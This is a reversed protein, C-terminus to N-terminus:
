YPVWMLWAVGVLLTLVTLPVGVRAYELFTVEEGERRAAEVVILNAVSGLVTLNGALTSSMALALWATEQSGAPMAEVVPQLLLVAPVNSVLNSLGVSVLSLLDVPRALLWSWRPIDWTEVVHLRFTYVVIFLGAFMLLLTWDVQRYIKAPQVRGLLLVSAAALAILALHQSPLLFFLGVTALGVLMAKNRLGTHAASQPASSAPEAERQRAPQPVLRHRYLLSLLVYAILMGVLAVPLLRSTFRAYAIRSHIGIIINQPNGTITASSVINAATALGLLHPLPDYGLRRTLRLLLPTLAICVIDNVLFASLVGSLGITWALLMRPSAILTQTWAVIQEFFGSLRLVGVLVMMGFLLVLAEYNICQPSFAQEFSVLGCVLMVTAGVLAIGVRDIRLGPVRGIALATYILAFLVLALWSLPSM